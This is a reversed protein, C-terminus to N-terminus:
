GLIQCDGQRSNQLAPRAQPLISVAAVLASADLISLLSPVFPPLSSNLYKLVLYPIAIQSVPNAFNGTLFTSRILAFMRQMAKEGKELREGVVRAGWSLNSRFKGLERQAQIKIGEEETLPKPPYIPIYPYSPLPEQQSSGMTAPLGM